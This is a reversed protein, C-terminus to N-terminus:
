APRPRQAPDAGFHSSGPTWDLASARRLAGWPLPPVPAVPPPGTPSPEESHARRFPRTRPPHPRTRPPHPRARPRP